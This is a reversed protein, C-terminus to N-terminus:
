TYKTIKILNPHLMHLLIVNKSGAIYDADVSRISANEVQKSMRYTQRVTLSLTACLDFVKIEM